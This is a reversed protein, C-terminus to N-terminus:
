FFMGRRQASQRLWNDLQGAWDVQDVTAYDVDFKGFADHGESFLGGGRNVAYYDAASPNVGPSPPTANEPPQDKPPHAFAASNGRGPDATSPTPM